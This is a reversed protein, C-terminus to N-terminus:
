VRFFRNNRRKSRHLSRSASAPSATADTVLPCSDCTAERRIPRFATPLWSSSFRRVIAGLAAVAIGTVIITQLM